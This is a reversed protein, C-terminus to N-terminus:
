RLTSIPSDVIRDYNDALYYGSQNKDLATGVTWEAPYSLKVALPSAQMGTPFGFVGQGNILVHDQEISTGCMRYIVDKDVRTDWTEAIHYQIKRVQEPQEIKWQNTSIQETKLARGKKDFAQFSRVFRGIDMVQYTGPATAAFQYVANEPKLGDVNLTVKFQDDARDNLNVEYLLLGPPEARVTTALLCLTFATLLTLKKMSTILIFHVDLRNVFKAIM